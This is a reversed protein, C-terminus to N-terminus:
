CGENWGRSPQQGSIVESWQSTHTLMRLGIDLLVVM